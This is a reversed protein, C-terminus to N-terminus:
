NGRIDRVMSSSPEPGRTIALDVIANFRLWRQGNQKTLMTAAPHRFMGTANMTDLAAWLETHTFRRTEIDEVNFREAVRRGEAFCCDETGNGSGYRTSAGCGIAAILCASASTLLTRRFM